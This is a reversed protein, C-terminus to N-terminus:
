ICSEDHKICFGGNQICLEGKPDNLNGYYVISTFLIVAILQLSCMVKIVDGM